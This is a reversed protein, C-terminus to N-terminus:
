EDDKEETWKIKDWNSDVKDKNEVRRDSGKGAM